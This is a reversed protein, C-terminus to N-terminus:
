FSSLLALKKERWGMEWRLAASIMATSFLSKRSASSCGITRPKTRDAREWLASGPIGQLRNDSCGQDATAAVDEITVESFLAPDYTLGIGKHDVQGSGDASSSEMDESVPQDGPTPESHVVPIVTPAAESTPLVINGAVNDFVACGALLWGVTFLCVFLIRKQLM